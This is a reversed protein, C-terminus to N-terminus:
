FRASVTFIAAFPEGPIGDAFEPSCSYNTLPTGKYIGSPVTGNNGASSCNAPSEQHYFYQFYMHNFLNQLNLDFKVKKLFPLGPTPLTYNIDLNFLVYPSIGDKPNTDTVTAGSVANFYAPQGYVAGIPLPGINEFGTLDTTSYQHGSYQGTPRIELQDGDRFVSKPTWDVGFNSTWDPVGSVPTGKIADGFQDEQVTVSAVNTVLYKALQHSANGFLQIDPTVQWTVSGEVGKFERQGLSNYASQGQLPGSQYQFFGFDRDVKQYFYDASVSVNSTNYKIGGEYLHVISAGPVGGALNPQFDAVPAFLASQGTSGYVTLGKLMPLIKDFDYSVNFFPLFERDWKGSKFYGYGCYNAQCYPSAAQAASVTGGFIESGVFSSASGELTFGPTLHLTNDLVDIKDQAYGQYITRQTGGDFGGGTFIGGLNAATQPVDTTGGMYTPGAPSTEKAFLGGIHINQTIGFIEPPTILARPQFGYTDNHSIGLIANLGCPLGSPDSAFRKVVTANCSASGPPYAATPNYPYAFPSYYVGGPGFIGEGDGLGFGAPVQLFPAAGGVTYSGGVGSPGFALNNAYSLQTSDSNLYFGTAGVTLYDNIYTDDKLIITLYDNHQYTFEEDPSYNSFRGYKALYPLPVPEPTYLASGTNYLVTAQFKSLGDDYPKDFAFEMNNYRAPTYDVFGSTQLNSYQLLLKPANDGTGLPGDLEGSNLTFGENYTKFSGVSGFVDIAFDNEPRKSAYAVTGGITGFTNKDPYAVGPYIAVSSIQDLNFHGGIINQLYGGTGGSLLDQMPVDDLTQATELGRIGRITLVPENNGIGQQYVNVSPAQRLLTAISGGVGTQAIAKASLETVASPSNKDKLLQRQARVTISETAGASVSPSLPGSTQTPTSQSPATQALGSAAPVLSAVLGCATFLMLRQKFPRSIRAM